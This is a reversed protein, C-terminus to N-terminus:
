CAHQQRSQAFGFQLSLADLAHIVALLHDERQLTSASLSSQNGGFGSSPFVLPLLQHPPLMVLSGSAVFKM